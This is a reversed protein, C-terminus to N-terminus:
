VLLITPLTLHTYSVPTPHTQPISDAHNEKSTDFRINELRNDHFDGNNHCTQMGAPMPGDFTEKVIRGLNRRYLPHLRVYLVGKSEHPKLFHGGIWRFGYRGIPVKRRICWVRGRNSIRYNPAEPHTKWIEGFM